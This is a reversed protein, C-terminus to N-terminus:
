KTLSDPSVELSKYEKKKILPEQSNTKKEM